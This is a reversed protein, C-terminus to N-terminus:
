GFAAVMAATDNYERLHQVRGHQVTLVHVWSMSYSKGTKLSRSTERGVVTVREGEAFIEDIAFQEIQIAAVIQQFYALFGHPGTYIGGFPVVAPLPNELVSQPAVFRELLAEVQGAAFLDYFARTTQTETM